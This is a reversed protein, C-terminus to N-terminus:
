NKNKPPFLFITTKDKKLRLVNRNKNEQLEYGAGILDNALRTQKSSLLGM